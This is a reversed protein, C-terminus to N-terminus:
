GLAPVALAVLVLVVSALFLGALLLLGACGSKKAEVPELKMTKAFKKEVLEVRAKADEVSLGDEDCLFKIAKVKQGSSLLEIVHKQKADDDM